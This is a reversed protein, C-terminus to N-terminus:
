SKMRGLDDPSLPRHIGPRSQWALARLNLPQRSPLAPVADTGDGRARGM